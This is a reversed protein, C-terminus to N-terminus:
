VHVERDRYSEWVISQMVHVPLKRIRAAKRYANEIRRRVPKRELTKREDDTIVKGMYVSVAHRDIVPTGDDWPRDIAEAFAKVKPGSIVEYIGHELIALAKHVNNPYTMDTTGDELVESVATKCQNVTITPSLVAFMGIVREPYVGYRMAKAECWRRMLPYWSHGAKVARDDARDFEALINHYSGRLANHAKIM